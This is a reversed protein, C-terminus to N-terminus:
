GKVKVRKASTARFIADAINTAEKIEKPDHVRVIDAGQMVGITCAAVTGVLRDQPLPQNNLAGIFSKRSVGLLVPYGLERFLNLHRLITLNHELTKGFGIGPDVILQSIHYSRALNIRELLFDTIELIVDEYSPNNQMTQPMGAMHMLILPVNQEAVVAFLSPDYRGSSVDNIIDVGAKIGELAVKAKMTDLSLPLNPYARRILGITPIVRRLEEAEQVPMAGPKTSEGGIDLIDIYPLMEEVREIAKTPSDYNGGDSFSDPTLNLIGMIYTRDGWNFRKGRIEM